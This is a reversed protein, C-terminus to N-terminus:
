LGHTVKGGNYKENYYEKAIEVVRKCLSMTDSDAILTVHDKIHQYSYKSYLMGISSNLFCAVVLDCSLFDVVCNENNKIINDIANYLLMGDVTNTAFKSNIVDSVKIRTGRLQSM